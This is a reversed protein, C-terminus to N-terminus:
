CKFCLIGLTKFKFDFCEDMICNGPDGLVCGLCRVVLGFSYENKKRKGGNLFLYNATARLQKIEAQPHGHM